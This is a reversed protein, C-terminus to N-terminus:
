PKYKCELVLLRPQSTSLRVCLRDPTLPMFRSVPSAPRTHAQINATQAKPRSHGFNQTHPPNIFQSNASEENTKPGRGPRRLRGRDLWTNM